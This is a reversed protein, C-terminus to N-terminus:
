RETNPAPLSPVCSKPNAPSIIVAKPMRSLVSQICNREAEEGQQPASVITTYGYRSLDASLRTIMEAHVPIDIDSLIIAITDSEQHRLSQAFYNRVYHMEQAKKKVMEKTQKSIRPDDNLSKAVTSFSVGLEEAISKITVKEGQKPM